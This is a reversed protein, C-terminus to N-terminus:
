YDGKFTGAIVVSDVGFACGTSNCRSVANFFGEMHHDNIATFTISGPNIGNNSFIPTNLDAVNKRYECTFNYTGPNTVCSFGPAYVVIYVAANAENTGEVYTGAGLVACGMKAKSGTANITITSTASVVVTAKVEYNTSTVDGTSSKKCSSVILLTCIIFGLLIKM